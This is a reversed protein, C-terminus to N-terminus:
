EPGNYNGSSTVRSWNHPQAAMEAKGDGEVVFIHWHTPPQSLLASCNAGPYDQSCVARKGAFKTLWGLARSNQKRKHETEELQNCPRFLGLPYAHQGPLVADTGDGQIQSLHEPCMATSRPPTAQMDAHSTKAVVVHSKEAGGSDVRAMKLTCYVFNDVHKHCACACVFPPLLGPKLGYAYADRAVAASCLESKLLALSTAYRLIHKQRTTCEM